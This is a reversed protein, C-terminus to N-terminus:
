FRYTGTAFIETLDDKTRPPPIVWTYGALTEAKEFAAKIQIANAMTAGEARVEIV